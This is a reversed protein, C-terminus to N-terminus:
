YALRPVQARPHDRPLRLIPSVCNDIKVIDKPTPTAIPGSVDPRQNAVPEHDWERESRRARDDSCHEHVCWNLLCDATARCAIPIM